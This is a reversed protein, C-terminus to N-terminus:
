ERFDSRGGERLEVELRAGENESVTWSMRGGEADVRERISQLGLGSNVAGAGKGNDELILRVTAKPTVTLDARISTAEGHRVANSLGEQFIRYIQGAISRELRDVSPDIRLSLREGDAELIRAYERMAESLTMRDLVSPHLGRAAGRLDRLIDDLLGVARDREDCGLSEGSELELHLKLAAVNRAAGDHLDRAIRAREDDRIALLREGLQRSRERHRALRMLALAGFTGSFLVFGWASPPTWQGIESFFPGFFNLFDPIFSVAIILLAALGIRAQPERRRVAGLVIAFTWGIAMLGILAGGLNAWIETHLNAAMPTLVLGVSLSAIAFVVAPRGIGNDGFLRRVMLLACAPYAFIWLWGATLMAGLGPWEGFILIRARLAHMVLEALVLGCFCWGFLERWHRITVPLAVALLTGLLFLLGALPPISAREREYIALKLSDVPGVVPPPGQLGGPGFFNRVRIAVVNPGDTSLSVSDLPFADLGATWPLGIYPDFNGRQGLKEGNWYIEAINSVYGPCFALGEGFSLAPLRLRYWGTEGVEALGADQWGGDLSEPSVPTWDADNTGPGAWAPDDGTRFRISEPPTFGSPWASRPETGHDVCGILCFGALGVFYRALGGTFRRTVPPPRAPM